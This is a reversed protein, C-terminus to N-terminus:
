KSKANEEERVNNTDPIDHGLIGELSKRLRFLQKGFAEKDGSHCNTIYLAAELNCACQVIEAIDEWEAKKIAEWVRPHIEAM